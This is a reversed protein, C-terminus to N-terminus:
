LSIHQISFSSLATSLENIWSELKQGPRNYIMDISLNDFIESMELVCNIAEEADHIRGLIKLDSDILSQVGISLRNIGASRFGNAKPLDITKPNAEL